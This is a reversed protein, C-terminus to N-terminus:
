QNGKSVWFRHFSYEHYKDSNLLMEDSVNMGFKTDRVQGLRWINPLVKLKNHETTNEPWDNIFSFQWIELLPLSISM